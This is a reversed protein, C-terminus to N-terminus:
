AAQAAAVTALGAAASAAAIPYRADLDLAAATLELDGFSVVGGAERVILQAAAADVSRCPRLSLMADFRGAAVYAASIAISGVVRLRYAKGDLAALAPQSREPEASELGVIELKGNASAVRAPEGGLRAGEGRGALFEEDAGFDHVFGFEVDAMAPGSAVAISLSHSPITRRANLSGDIPDIVVRASGGGGLAVEGREESVATFAAGEEALQELEAFVVDECRRDIVLTHDGGEGVGDYDTRQEISSTAAFIERQAAVIRRCIVPWDASFVDM